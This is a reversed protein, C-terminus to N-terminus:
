HSGSAYKSTHGGSCNGSFYGVGKAQKGNQVTYRDKSKDHEPCTKCQEQGQSGVVPLHFKGQGIPGKGKRDAGADGAGCLQRAM